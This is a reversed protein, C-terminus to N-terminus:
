VRPRREWAEKVCIQLPKNQMNDEDAIVFMCDAQCDPCRVFGSGYGEYHAVNHMFVRIGGCFPCAKLESMTKDEWALAAERPTMMHVASTHCDVCTYWWENNKECLSVNYSGCNPCPSLLLKTQIVKEM